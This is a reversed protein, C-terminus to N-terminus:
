LCIGGSTGLAAPGVCGFAEWGGVRAAMFSELAWLFKEM